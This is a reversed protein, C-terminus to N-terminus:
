EVARIIAATANQGGGFGRLMATKPNGKVQREGCQGRIQKVAEYYDAIGSAAYAHGFACRGGNTNIPKDGDFATRGDIFYKWGKGKPLYGTIEAAILQSTILFDNVYLLDLEEPKMGTLEYVQRVAEETVRKELHTQAGDLSSNGIGLIEVPRQKFKHAIETPCVILAAAGSSRWEIGSLRQYESMKPNFASKLYEEATDFGNKKAIDAYEEQHHALPNRAANRRSNICIANLTDDMQEPTIGYEQVYSVPADDFTIASAAGFFRTYARDYIQSLGNEGLQDMSMEQRIHAPKGKVPMSDSMEVAGSLVINYKGSAVANM